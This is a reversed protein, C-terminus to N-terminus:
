KTFNAKVTTPGNLTLACSSKGTCGGGNWGGFSGKTATATLTVVSGAPFTGSCRSSCKIGAPTSVVVGDGAGTVNVNMTVSQLNFTATVTTASALTVTCNGTGSCGGGSWTSFTSGTAPKATLTVATGNPYGAWCTTGCNIGAPSTTVTGTGAGVKTVTLLSSVPLLDFSATITTPASLTVTCDGTGTCGGGSWGTFTSGTAASATLTVMSNMAYTGSCTAGCIIGPSSSIVTGSGTGGEVVALIVGSATTACAVNSYDSYVTANFARVRYCYTTADDVTADAYNLVGPGTTGIEIFEGTTGMRREIAFSPEDSADLWTAVLQGGSAVSDWGTLIPLVLSAMVLFSANAVVRRVPKRGTSM